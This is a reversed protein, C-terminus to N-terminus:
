RCLIKLARIGKSPNIRSPGVEKLMATNRLVLWRLIQGTLDGDTYVMCLTEIFTSM